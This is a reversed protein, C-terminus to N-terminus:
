FIKNVKRRIFNCIYQTVMKYFKINKFNDVHEPLGTALIRTDLSYWLSRKDLWYFKQYTAKKLIKNSIVYKVGTLISGNKLTKKKKFKVATVFIHKKKEVIKLFKNYKNKPLINTFLIIINRGGIEWGNLKQVM